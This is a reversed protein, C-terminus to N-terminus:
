LFQIHERAIGWRDSIWAALVDQINEKKDFISFYPDPQGITISVRPLHVDVRARVYGREHLAAEIAKATIDSARTQATAVLMSHLQEGRMRVDQPETRMSFAKRLEAHVDIRWLQALPTLLALLVLLSLVLRVYRRMTGAPACVDILSALVVVIILQWLGEKV